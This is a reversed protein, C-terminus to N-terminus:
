AAIEVLTGPAPTRQDSRIPPALSQIGATPLERQEFVIEPRPRPERTPEAEDQTQRVDRQDSSDNARVIPGRDSRPASSIENRQVNAAPNPVAQPPSALEQLPALLNSANSYAVVQRRVEARSEAATPEPQTLSRNSVTTTTGPTTETVTSIAGPVVETEETTRTETTTPRVRDVAGQLANIVEPGAKVLLNELRTSVSDGTAELVRGLTQVIRSSNQEISEDIASVGRDGGRDFLRDVTRVLSEGLTGLAFQVRRDTHSGGTDVIRDLTNLLQDGRREAVSSLFNVYRDSSRGNGRPEAEGARDAARDLIGRLEQVGASETGPVTVTETSTRTVTTSPQQVQRTTTTGPTTVTVDRTVADLARRLERAPAEAAQAAVSQDRVAFQQSSQQLTQLTSSALPSSPVQIVSSRNNSAQPQSLGALLQAAPSAKAEESLPRSPVILSTSRASAGGLLQAAALASVGAGM